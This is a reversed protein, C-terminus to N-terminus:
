MHVIASGCGPQVICGPAPWTFGRGHARHCTAVMLFMGTVTRFSWADPGHTLESKETAMQYGFPAWLVLLPYQILSDISFHHACLWIYTIFPYRLKLHVIGPWVFGTRFCIVFCVDFDVICFPWWVFFWLRFSVFDYVHSLLLWLYLLSLLSFKRCMSPNWCRDNGMFIDISLCLKLIIYISILRAVTSLYVM